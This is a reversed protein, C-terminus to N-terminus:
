GFKPCAVGDPLVLGESDSCKHTPCEKGVFVTVDPSSICKRTPCGQDDPHLQGDPCAIM